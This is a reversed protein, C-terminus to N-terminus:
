SFRDDLEAPDVTNVLARNVFALWPKNTRKRKNKHHKKRKHRRGKGKLTEMNETCEPSPKAAQDMTNKGARGIRSALEIMNRVTLGTQLGFVDQEHRTDYEVLYGFERPAPRIRNPEKGHNKGHKWKQLSMDRDGEGISADSSAVDEGFDNNIYTLNAFYQTYGLWSLSQPSYAPGPPASKSPGDPVNFNPKRNKSRTKRTLSTTTSVLNSSERQAMFPLGENDLKELGTINYEFVRLTPFYNPVVSPSVFSASYREGWEGGIEKFYKDRKSKHKKKQSGGGLADSASPLRSWLSRLSKLYDPESFLVKVEDDRAGYPQPSRGQQPKGGLLNLGIDEFDQLMFHDINMHGYVSGVVVDRYQRMWLAYKQWCTEDWMEKEETRAPPVHGSIIAKMGQDRLLQLQIRLWEFHEYGPESPSACGDVAANPAFFYRNM